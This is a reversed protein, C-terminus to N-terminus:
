KLMSRNQNRYQLPTCNCLNKFVACFYTASSFKLMLAIDEVSSDTESLLRKAEAIRLQMMYKAPSVTYYKAWNRFFSSRSFGNVEILEDLSFTDCYHLNFYAIIRNINETEFLQPTESRKRFLALEELLQMCKLDARDAIGFEMPRDMMEKLLNILHSIAPTLEIDWSLTNDILGTKKFYEFMEPKYLIYFIDRQTIDKIRYSERPPKILFHPFSNTYKENGIVHTVKEKTCAIRLCFELKNQFFIREAIPLGVCGTIYGYECVQPLISFQRTKNELNIKHNNYESYAKRM